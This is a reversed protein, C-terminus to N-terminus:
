TTAMLSHCSSNEKFAARGNTSYLSPLHGASLELHALFDKPNTRLRALFERTKEQMMQRYLVMAGIRLGRDLLKRGKRWLETMGTGLLLWDM